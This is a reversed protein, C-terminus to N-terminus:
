FDGALTVAAGSGPQANGAVNLRYDLHARMGRGVKISLRPGADLRKLGPQAGAWAGLGASLNGWVPRSVALQMDAFWDPNNFDVVGAQFYGDLALQWPLPRGYVGGEAFLSFANRGYDKFGHRRELTFAVPWAASPQYRLGLAAEMGRQSNVPASTRLTAAFRPDARWMLRAGAESGGLMGRNSLSDPGPQERLTAWSSVSLRDFGVTQNPERFGPTRQVPVAAVSQAMAPIAAQSGGYFNYERPPVPPPALYLQQQQPASHDQAEGPVPVYVPYPQFLPYAQMMGSAPGFAFSQPPRPPIAQVEEVAPFISPEIPPLRSPRRRATELDFAM